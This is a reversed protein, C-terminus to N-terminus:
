PNNEAYSAVIVLDPESLKFWEGRERKADFLEHLTEETLEANPSRWSMLLKLKFPNGIQLQAVRGPVDRAIGIKYFDCCKIVYVFGDSRAQVCRSIAHKLRESM